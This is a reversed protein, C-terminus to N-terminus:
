GQINLGFKYLQRLVHIGIHTYTSQLNSNYMDKYILSHTLFHLTIIYHACNTACFQM